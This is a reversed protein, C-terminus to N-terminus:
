SSSDKDKLLDVCRKLKPTLQDYVTCDQRQHNRKKVEKKIMSTINSYVMKAKDQSIILAVLAATISQFCESSIASPDRIGLGGLRALLALLIEQYLLM